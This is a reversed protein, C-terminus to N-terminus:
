MIDCLIVPPTRGETGSGCQAIRRGCPESTRTTCLTAIDLAQLALELGRLHAHGLHLLHASSSAVIAHARCASCSQPSSPRRCTDADARSSFSFSSSSASVCCSSSDINPFRIANTTPFSCEHSQAEDRTLFADSIGSFGVAPNYPYYALATVCM